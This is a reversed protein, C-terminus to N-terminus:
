RGAKLAAVIRAVDAPPLSRPRGHWHGDGAPHMIRLHKPQFSFPLMPVLAALYEVCRDDVQQFPFAMYGAAWGRPGMDFSLQSPRTVKSLKGYPRQGPLLAGDSPDRWRFARVTRVCAPPLGAAGTWPDGAAILAVAAPLQSPRLKWSHSMMDLFDRHEIECPGFAEEARAIAPQLEADSSGQGGTIIELQASDGWGFKAIASDTFLSLFRKVEEWQAEVTRARLRPYQPSPPLTYHLESTYDEPVGIIRGFM